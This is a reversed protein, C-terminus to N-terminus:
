LREVLGSAAGRDGEGLKELVPTWRAEDFPMLLASDLAASAHRIRGLATLAEARDFWADAETTRDLDTLADSPREAALAARGRWLLARSAIGSDPHNVLSSLISWASDARGLSLHCEGLLLGAEARLAVDASVEVAERLPAIADRCEGIESLARGQMLLADDLYKSDSYRTAVAEAKVAAQGWLSEGESGRGEGEASPDRYKAIWKACNPDNGMMVDAGLVAQMTEAHLQSTIASTMGSGM